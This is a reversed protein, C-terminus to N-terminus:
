ARAESAMAKLCAPCLCSEAETKPLPVRFTEDKCWCDGAPDCAFQAGCRTCRLSAPPTGSSM